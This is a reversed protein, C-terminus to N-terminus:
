LTMGFFSAISALSGINGLSGQIFKVMKSGEETDNKEYAEKLKEAFYELQAKNSENSKESIEKLLEAFLKDSEDSKVQNVQVVDDGNNLNPNGNVNGGIHITRGENNLFGDGSMVIQQLVKDINVQIQPPLDGYPINGSIGDKAVVQAVERIKGRFKGKDLRLDQKKKFDGRVLERYEPTIEFTPFLNYYSALFTNGCIDCNFENDIIDEKNDVKIIKRACILEENSCKLEWKLKLEGEEVLRLLYEFVSELSTANAYKLVATPYFSSVTSFALLEVFNQIERKEKLNVSM